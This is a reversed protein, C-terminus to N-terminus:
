SPPTPPLLSPSASDPTSRSPPAPPAAPGRSDPHRPGREITAEDYDMWTQVDNRSYSPVYNVGRVDAWANTYGPATGGDGAGAGAADYAAAPTPTLPAHTIRCDATSALASLLVIARAASSRSM